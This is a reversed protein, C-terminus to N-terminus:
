AARVQPFRQGGSGVVCQSMQLERQVGAGALSADSYTSSGSYRHETEAQWTYTISSAPAQQASSSQWGLGKEDSM